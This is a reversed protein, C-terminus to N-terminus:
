YPARGLRNWRSNAAAVHQVSKATEVEPNLSAAMKAIQAHLQRIEGVLEACRHSSVEPKAMEAALLTKLSEACDASEEILTLVVLEDADWALGTALGDNLM